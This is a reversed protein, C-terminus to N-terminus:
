KKEKKIQNQNINKKLIKRKKIKKQNEMQIKQVLVM